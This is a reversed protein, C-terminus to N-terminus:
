HEHPGGSESFANQPRTRERGFAMQIARDRWIRRHKGIRTTAGKFYGQALWHKFTRPSVQFLQASQQITLVPPFRDGWGAVVFASAIEETQILTPRPM